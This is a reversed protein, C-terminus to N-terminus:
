NLIVRIKVLYNSSFKPARMISLFIIDEGNEDSIMQGQVFRSAEGGEDIVAGSVFKEHLCIRFFTLWKKLFKKIGRKGPYNSPFNRARMIRSGVSRLRHLTDFADRLKYAFVRCIVVIM